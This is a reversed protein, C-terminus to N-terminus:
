DATELKAQNHVQSELQEALKKWFALCFNQLNNLQSQEKKINELYHRLVLSSFQTLEEDIQWNHDLITELVRHPEATAVLFIRKVWEDILDARQNNAHLHGPSIQEPFREVLAAEAPEYILSIIALIIDSPIDKSVLHSILIFFQTYNPDNLFQVIIQALLNDDQKKKGEQKKIRKIAAQAQRYREQFQEDSEQAKEKGGPAGTFSEFGGLGESM